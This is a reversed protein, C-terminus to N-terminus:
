DSGPAAVSTRPILEFAPGEGLSEAPTGYKLILERVAAAHEARDLPRAVADWSADGVTCRCAPDALLNRGWAADSSGAAVLVTGGAQGVFGVAASAPNGTVRGTTEIRMVRGWAILDDEV